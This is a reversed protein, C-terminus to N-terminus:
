ARRVVGAIDWLMNLPDGILGVRSGPANKWSVPAELISLGARRALYLLEVDFAFRDVTMKAVIPATRDRKLLKFGCQTDLYPLRTMLRVLRNFTQGMLWRHTPQYQVIVSDPLARSGIVVDHGGSAALLHLRDFEEIPTSLDADSMLLWQGSSKSFGHRFSFGKGRNTGNSLLHLAAPDGARRGGGLKLRAREVAAATGDRSGDDVVVIESEFPKRAIWDIVRELTAPLRAEENFAPIVISLFPTSAM